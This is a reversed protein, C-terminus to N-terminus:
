SRSTESSSAPFGSPTIDTWAGAPTASATRVTACCQEPTRSCEGCWRFYSIYLTRNNHVTNVFSLSEDLKWWEPPVANSGMPYIVLPFALFCGAFFYEGHSSSSLTCTTDVSFNAWSLILYLPTTLLSHEERSYLWVKLLCIQM